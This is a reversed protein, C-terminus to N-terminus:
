HNQGIKLQRLKELLTIAAIENGLANPHLKDTESVRLEEPSYEAFPKLLDLTEYNLSEAFKLVSSHVGIWRYDDFSADPETELLPFLVLLLEFNDKLSLDSLSKMSRVVTDWKIRDCHMRSYYDFFDCGPIPHFEKRTGLLKEMRKQITDLVMSKSQGKRFRQNISGDPTPDNLVYALVVLDPDFNRGLEKFITVEQLTSYQNTGMNFVEFRNISGGEALEQNLLAQLRNTFRDEFKVRYGNTVSDGLVIIRYNGDKKALPWEQDRFGYTNVNRSSNPKRVYVIEQSDPIRYAERYSTKEMVYWHQLRMGLEVLILPTLIGGLILLVATTPSTKNRPRLNPNTNVPRPDHYPHYQLFSEAVLLIPIEVWLTLEWKLADLM